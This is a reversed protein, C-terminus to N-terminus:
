ETTSGDTRSGNVRSRFRWPLDPWDFDHGIGNFARGHGGQISITISITNTTAVKPMTMVRDWSGHILYVPSASPCLLSNHATREGASSVSPSKGPTTAVCETRERAARRPPQASVHGAPWHPVAVAHNASRIGVPSRGQRRDYYRRRRLQTTRKVPAQDGFLSRLDNDVGVGRHHLHGAWPATVALFIGTAVPM